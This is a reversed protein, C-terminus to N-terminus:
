LQFGSSFVEPRSNRRGSTYRYPHKQRENELKALEDLLKADLLAPRLSDEGDTLEAFINKLNGVFNIRRCARVFELFQLLGDDNADIEQWANALSGFQKILARKFLKADAPPGSRAEPRQLLLHVEAATQASNSNRRGYNFDSGTNYKISSMQRALAFSNRRRSTKNGNKLKRLIAPLKSDLMEPHLFEEGGTLAQFIKKLNGNFKMIRCQRTFEVFDVSGDKNTDMQEWAFELREFKKLLANKFAKVDKPPGAGARQRQLLLQVEGYTEAQTIHGHNFDSASLEL